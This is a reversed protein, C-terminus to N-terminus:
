GKKTLVVPFYAPLPHQEVKSPKFQETIKVGYRLEFFERVTKRQEKKPKRNQQRIYKFDLLKQVFSALLQKDKLWHFDSSLHKYQILTQEMELFESVYDPFFIHCEEEQSKPKPRAQQEADDKALFELQIKRDNLQKRCRSLYNCTIQLNSETTELEKDFEEANLKSYVDKCKEFEGVLYACDAEIKGLFRIDMEADVVSRVKDLVTDFKAPIKELEREAMELRRDNEDLIPGVLEFYKRSQEVLETLRAVPSIISALSGQLRLMPESIIRSIEDYPKFMDNVWQYDSFLKNSGLISEFTNNHLVAFPKVVEAIPKFVNHQQVSLPPRCMESIKRWNESVKHLSEAM